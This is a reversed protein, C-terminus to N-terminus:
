ERMKRKLERLQEESLGSPADGRAHTRIEERRIYEEIKKNQQGENARRKGQQEGKTQGITQGKFQYQEWNLVTIVSYNPTSSKAVCKARELKMLCGRIQKETLGTENALKAVSTVRSGAPLEVCKWVTKKFNVTLLLHFFLRTTPIDDYWEWDLVKRYLKIFGNELM